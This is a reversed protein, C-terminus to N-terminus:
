AAERFLDLNGSKDAIVRLRFGRAYTADRVARLWCRYAWGVRAYFPYADRLAKRLAKQDDLGVDAVVAEVVKRADLYKQSVRSM